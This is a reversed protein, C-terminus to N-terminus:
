NTRKTKKITPKSPNRLDLISSTKNLLKEPLSKSLHNLVELQLKLLSPNSGLHVLFFEETQLSTNGNPDFIIRKLGLDLKEKNKLIRKILEKKSEEWGDIILAERNNTLQIPKLFSLWNGELDIFGQEKGNNDQRIAIAIPNKELIEINLNPYSFSRKIAVARIPLNSLLNNEIEKPNIKLFAIPLDIKMSNIIEERSTNIAGKINISEEKIPEWGKNLLFSGLCISIFSFFIIEWIVSITLYPSNDSRSRRKLDKM